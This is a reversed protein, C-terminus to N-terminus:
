EIEKSLLYILSLENRRVGKYIILLRRLRTLIGMINEPITIVKGPPSM